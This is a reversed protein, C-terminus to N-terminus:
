SPPPWRLDIVLRGWTRNVAIAQQRMIVATAEDDARACEVADHRLRRKALADDFDSEAWPGVSVFPMSVYIRNEADAPAVCYSWDAAQAPNHFLLSAVLLWCFRSKM